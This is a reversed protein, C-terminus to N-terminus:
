QKILTLESNDNTLILKKDIYDVIYCITFSTDYNKYRYFEFNLVNNFFSYRGASYYIDDHKWNFTYRIYDDSSMEIYQTNNNYYDFSWRGLLDCASTYPNIETKNCSILALLNFLFITFLTIKM